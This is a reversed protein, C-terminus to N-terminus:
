KQTIEDFKFITFDDILLPRKASVWSIFCYATPFDKWNRLYTSQNGLNNPDWVKIIFNNGADYGLVIDYWTDPELTLLNGKFSGSFQSGKQIGHVLVNKDTTQMAVSHFNSGSIREGNQDVNDLGLTFAEATGIFKFTLYVGTQPAIQEGSFYFVTGHWAAGTDKPQAKLQNERTVWIAGKEDSEWGQPVANESVFEFSERHIISIGSFTQNVPHPLTVPTPSPEATVTPEPTNTPTPAPSSTSTPLPTSTPPQAVPQCATLLILVMFLFLCHKM